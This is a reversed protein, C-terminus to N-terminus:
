FPLDDDPLSFMAVASKTLAEADQRGTQGSAEVLEPVFWFGGNWVLYEDVEWRDYKFHLRGAAKMERMKAPSHHVCKAGTTTGDKLRLFMYGGDKCYPCKYIRKGNSDYKINQKVQEARLQRREMQMIKLIDVPKPFYRETEAYRNLAHRAEHLTYGAYLPLYVELEEPEFLPKNYLRCAANYFDQLEHSNM